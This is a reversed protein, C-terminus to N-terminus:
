QRLPEFSGTVVTDTIIPVELQSILVLHDSALDADTPYGWAQVFVSSTVPVELAVFLGDNTSAAEQNHHVPLNLSSSFYFTKAQDVPSATAAVRSITAVFNSIEHADCDRVAGAVIGTGPTRVIGILAPISTGTTKSVIQIKALTQTATDPAVKQNLLLTDFDVPSTMKVGFRTTGTPIHLSVAGSGDSTQTDFVATTSIGPFATVAISGVPMAKEFDLTTTALSVAVTTPMDSTPTGLCALNAPGLESWTNTSVEMNAKLSKTPKAFGIDQGPADLTTSPADVSASGGGGCAGLGLGVSILSSVLGNRM